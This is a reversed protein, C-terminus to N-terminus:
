ALLRTRGRAFATLVSQPSALVHRVFLNESQMWLRRVQIVFDEQPTDLLAEVATRATGSAGICAHAFGIRLVQDADNPTRQVASIHAFCRSLDDRPLACVM